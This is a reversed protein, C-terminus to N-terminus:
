RRSHGTASIRHRPGRPTSEPESPLTGNEEQFQLAYLRAYLGEKALLETHTGSEAIQGHSLVFIRDSHLITSLRHAIIVATRGALLRDMAKQILRESITDVSSTAEDMVLIDPDFALVRTIGLLQRQGVSLNVGREALLTDFGKPLTEIFELAGTDTAAQRIRERSIDADHLGINDAITGAFLFTEQQVMGVLRRLRALPIRRIPVGDIKVRGQQPEYTRNLLKILSTKGAGTPGVVAVREGPEIHCNVGRLVPGQGYDFTINEYAIDGRMRKSAPLSVTEPGDTIAPPTDLLGFIRELATMAAQMTTYKGSLDRIPFFLRRIYDIFAVMVGITVTGEAKLVGGYWFLFAVVVTSATEIFSFQFAELFNSKLVTKLYDGNLDDFDARSAAQGHFLRIVERGEVEETLRGAMRAQILRGDRQVRRMTRTVLVTGLLIFPMAGLSVLSLRPSLYVMGIAIGILLLVDGILNILGASVMQSVAETDNTIRNTLRGSANRSFFDADMVLLHAFLDRRLDRIVRQGLLANVTSQLYGGIFQLAVLGAYLTLVLGFGDLDGTALHQDVARQIVLPQTLQFLSTLPLLLLAFAIWGKYPTAYGLFRAMLRIDLFRGYRTEETEALVAPMM